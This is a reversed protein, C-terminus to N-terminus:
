WDLVKMGRRRALSRLKRNPSVAAPRHVWDFVPEDTHHDSYFSLEAGGDQDLHEKLAERLRALKEAGYCNETALVPLHTGDHRLRWETGTAVVLDFGLREAIRAAYFDMAATALVLIDGAARHAAIAKLAGSRVGQKLLREVFAEAHREVDRKSRGAFTHALMRDKLQRRSLRGMKHSLMSGAIRAMLAARALTSRRTGLLFPTFTGYRTITRDLDFIAIHAM